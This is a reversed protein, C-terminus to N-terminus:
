QLELYETEVIDCTRIIIERENRCNKYAVIETKWVSGHVRVPKYGTKRYSVLFPFSAATEKCLSWSIGDDNLGEYCGRYIKRDKPFATFEDWEQKSMMGKVPGEMDEIPPEYFIQDSYIGTNDCLSWSEGLLRLWSHPPLIERMELLKPMRSGSDCYRNLWTAAVKEKKSSYVGPIYCRNRM